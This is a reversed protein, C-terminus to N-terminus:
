EWELLEEKFPALDSGEKNAGSMELLFLAYRRLGEM